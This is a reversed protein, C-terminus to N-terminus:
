KLVETGYFKQETSKIFETYRDPSDGFQEDTETFKNYLEGIETITLNRDMWPYLIEDEKKIHETLIERYAELNEIITECDKNELAKLITRVHARANEHDELMVQLIDLNKEFYTFLIDEEKAHHYRDAYNRIFDIGDCALKLGDEPVSELVGVMSPILAVLRKILVHEDVLKQIPPSYKITRSQKTKSKKEPLKIKRGPYIIQSIRGMMENEDDDPLNHIEVVDSLLCTGVSCPACGIDYETLIEEIGPFRVIM